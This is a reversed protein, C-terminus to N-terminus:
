NRISVREEPYTEEKLLASLEEEKGTFILEVNELERVAMLAGRVVETPAHDGGYADVVIRM